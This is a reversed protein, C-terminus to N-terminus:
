SATEAMTAPPIHYPPLRTKGPFDPLAQMLTRRLMDWKAGLLVLGVGLMLIIVFTGGEIVTFALAVIYGVGAVLFSRRDIIVAFIAMLAVFVVLIMQAFVTNQTFLTLAVTNVIAPAALIHLWFGSAARRTLRHPDSMDFAMAGILGIAGLIVTIIAFPGNASLLFFDLPSEPVAGGLAAFGFSATLISLAILAVTFPVRFFYYYFVLSAGAVLASFTLTGQLELGFAASLMAGFQGASMAFMVSLAISPAVMRRILTFYRALGAIGALALCAYVLGLIYGADSGLFTVGTLGLYGAYLIVLGVVIFIENFGRFLEFPEDVGSIHDRLGRRTESLAALSAAQAETMIGASVAARLDDPNLTNM